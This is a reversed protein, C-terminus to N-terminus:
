LVELEELVARYEILYTPTAFETYRTLDRIRSDLLPLQRDRLLEDIERSLTLRKDWRTLLVSALPRKRVRELDAITRTTTALRGVDLGTPALPVIMEDAITGTRYILAEDNPPTDVVVIGDSLDSVIEVVDDVSAAIVPYELFGADHWKTWSRDPDTDVGYVTRGEVHLAQAFYSASTTKGTGGKRNALVLVKHPSRTM